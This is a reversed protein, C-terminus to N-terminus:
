DEVPDDPLDCSVPFPPRSVGNVRFRRWHDADVIRCRAIGHPTALVGTGPRGRLLATLEASAGIRGYWHYQGDLPQFFGRLSVHLSIQRDAVCLAAPGDYGERDQGSV